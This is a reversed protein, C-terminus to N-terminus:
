INGKRAPKWSEKDLELQEHNVMWRGVAKKEKPSVVM